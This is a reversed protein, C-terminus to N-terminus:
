SRTYRLRRVEKRTLERYEGPALEALQLGAFRTRLLRTVTYGVSALMRRVQRKRGEALVVVCGGPKPYARLARAIGDELLVGACLRALMSPVVRGERCWVRYEKEHRYRPHTLEETLGGDTTLLLLGESDRDLRGVPHLAPILPMLEMVTKRGYKDHATTLVGTPKYLMFTRHREAPVVVEGRVRVEDGPGVSMGLVARRGDVVVEGAEILLEAKRRSAIGARALYKQLREKYVPDAM